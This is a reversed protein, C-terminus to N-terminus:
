QPQRVTAENADLHLADVLERLHEADDSGAAVSSAPPRRRFAAQVRSAGRHEPRLFM